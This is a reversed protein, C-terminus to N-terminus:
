AAARDPAPRVPPSPRVEIPPPEGPVGELPPIPALVPGYPDLRALTDLIRDVHSPGTGHEVLAGHTSLRVAFGVQVLEACLGAARNVASEIEDDHGTAIRDPTAAESVDLIVTARRLAPVEFDRVLLEGTRGSHKWSIHRPSDGYQFPRISHIEDGPGKRQSPEGGEGLGRLVGQISSRDLAPLVLVALPLRGRRAREIFGFPFRTGIRLGPLVTEGRREFRYEAELKIESRPAVVPVFKLMAVRGAQTTDTCEIAFSGMRRKANHLTLDPIAIEGAHIRAPLRRTGSLARLTSLALIGSVLFFALMMALVLYLLNNGTNMAAVGVAFTLVLFTAGEARIRPIEQPPPAASKPGAAARATM